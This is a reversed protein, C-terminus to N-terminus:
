SIDGSVIWTDTARKVLTAGQYQNNIDVSGGSTGNVTVGTDGEITTTGAGEMMVLITTNTPFAVSANTPITLTNASANNMWVTKKDKDTLVLTYTTGTQDNPVDIAIFEPDSVIDIDSTNGTITLSSDSSQLTKLEFDVGTKQKYVGTFGGVNSMTNTEGGGAGPLDDWDIKKHNAGDWIALKDGSTPSAEVSLGDFDLDFVVDDSSITADVGEGSLLGKVKLEVGVKTSTVDAGTAGAALGLTNTEGAFDAVDAKKLNGSDDTDSFLVFDGSVATETTQGTIAVSAITLATAGTVDGTHTANTVKATNTTVDSNNSVETDFDSITSATQTGTHNARALLDAVDGKALNDSDTADGFLITDGGTLTVLTQDSIATKDVTLVPGGTVQGTMTISQAAWAAGDYEYTQNEDAVFVFNGDTPTRAYWVSDEDSYRVIDNITFTSWDGGVGAIIYQDNDSPSGPATVLDKDIVTGWDNKGAGSLYNLAKVMTDPTGRGYKAWESDIATNWTYEFFVLPLTTGTGALSGDSVNFRSYFQITETGDDVKILLAIAGSRDQPLTSWGATITDKPWQATVVNSAFSVTPVSVPTLDTDVAVFEATVTAGTLDFPTTGDAKVVTIDAKGSQSTIIWTPENEATPPFAPIQSRQDVGGIIATGTYIPTDM